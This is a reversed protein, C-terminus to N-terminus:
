RRVAARELIFGKTRDGNMLYLSGGRGFGVISRGAPLEVREVLEGTRNVVDYVPGGHRSQASTAPLIWLNGDMDATVAGTRIPPFYDPIEALPVFALEVPVFKTGNPATVVKAIGGFSKAEDPTYGARGEAALSDNRASLSDIMRQKMGDTIPKWDFPMKPMSTHSGDANIWDIHYDHGRVIAISGDSTIAWEDITELPRQIEKLTLENSPSFTKIRTPASQVAVFAISDITRTDFDARILPATDTGPVTEIRVDGQRAVVTHGQRVSRYILRGRADVGSVGTTIWRFDAAKPPALVRGTKGDPGFVILSQSSWDVFLVSDGTYPVLPAPRV